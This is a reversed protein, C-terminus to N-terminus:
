VLGAFPLVSVTSGPELNACELPLIIFCNAKSMSSLIHSGQGGVSSVSWNGHEDQQMVGRQYEIRGASKRLSSTCPMQLTMEPMQSEGQMKRLAPLVLVYFTVMTSVPNGPLGFFVCDGVNGFALPRGPKMAIKWFNVRGLKELTEKIFDAEGVSVGGTTILVDADCAAQQFAQELDQRNDRIVGLDTISAGFRQLMAFLSYRNSDYIQGEKLPNGLSVLEDGTSFFAVRLPRYVKVSEIGLSALLGIDAADLRKGRELVQEGRRIDEGAQRVNQGAVLDRNIIITDNERSVHEQMVVTDTGPPMKGGTMIRVCENAKTKEQVPAGAMVTASVRLPQRPNQALDIARLAYGDMASNTYPPVDMPSTVPQALVQDLADRIATQNLQTVVQVNDRIHRLADDLLMSNPDFDDMCSTTSPQQSKAKM